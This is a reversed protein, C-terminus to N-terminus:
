FCMLVVWVRNHTPWAWSHWCLYHCWCLFGYLCGSLKTNIEHKSSQFRWLLSLHLVKSWFINFCIKVKKKELQACSWMSAMKWRNSVRWKGDTVRLYVCNHFDWHCSVGRGGESLLTFEWHRKTHNILLAVSLGSSPLCSLNHRWNKKLRRDRERFLSPHDSDHWVHSGGGRVAAGPSNSTTLM